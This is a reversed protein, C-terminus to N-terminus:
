EAPERFHEDFNACGMILAGAILGAERVDHGMEIAQDFYLDFEAYETTNEVTECTPSDGLCGM